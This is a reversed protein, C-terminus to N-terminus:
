RRTCFYNWYEDTYDGKIKEYTFYKDLIEMMDEPKNGLKRMYKPYYEIVVKLNPSREITKIMGKLAEPESGDIDMKVFDLKPINLSDLTIAHVNHRGIENGNVDIIKKESWLAFNFVEVNTLNNFQLNKILYQVLNPTPEFAYVKKALRGLLLTFYGFSTGADVCIDEKKVVEKILKNTNSEYDWGLMCDALIERMSPDKTATDLYLKDGNANYKLYETKSVTEYEAFIARLIDAAKETDKYAMEVLDDPFLFGIGLTKNKPNRVHVERM